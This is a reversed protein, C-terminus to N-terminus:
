QDPRSTTRGSLWSMAGGLKVTVVARGTGGPPGGDNMKGAPKCGYRGARDEGPSCRRKM